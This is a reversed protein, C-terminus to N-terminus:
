VCLTGVPAAVNAACPPPSAGAADSSGSSVSPSEAAAPMQDVKKLIAVTINHLVGPQLVQEYTAGNISIGFADALAVDVAVGDAQAQRLSGAVRAM